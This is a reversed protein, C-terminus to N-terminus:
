RVNFKNPKENIAVIRYHTAAGGADIKVELKNDINTKISFYVLDNRWSPDNLDNEDKVLVDMTIFTLSDSDFLPNEDTLIITAAQGDFSGTKQFRLNNYATEIETAAITSQDLLVLADVVNLGDQVSYANSINNYSGTRNVFLQGFSGTQLVELSGSIIGNNKIDIENTTIISSSFINIYGSNADITNTNLISQGTVVLNPVYLTNQVTLNSATLSTFNGSVVSANSASLIEFLGLSGTITSGTIVTSRVFSSSVDYFTSTYNGNVTLSGSLNLSGTIEAGRELIFDTLVKMPNIAM